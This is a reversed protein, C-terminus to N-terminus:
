SASVSFSLGDGPKLVAPPETWTHTTNFTTDTCFEGGSYSVSTYLTNGSITVSGLEGFTNAPYEKVPPVLEWRCVPQEGEQALPHPVPSAQAPLTALILLLSSIALPICATGRKFWTSHTLYRKM